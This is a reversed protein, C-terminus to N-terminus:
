RRALIWLDQGAVPDHPTQEPSGYVAEVTFGHRALMQELEPRRRARMRISEVRDITVPIEAAPDLALRTPFFDVYRDDDGPSFIRLFVTERDGDARFIPGICRRERSLIPGFELQHILLVGGAVVRRALQELMADLTEDDLSPLVNGVCLAAGFERDPLASLAGLDSRVFDLDPHHERATDIQTASVDVGLTAWGESAFRACHEGPGCGLDLLSRAPVPALVSEYLPWERQLRSSWAIMERYGLGEYRDEDAM